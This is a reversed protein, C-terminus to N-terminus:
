CYNCRDHSINAEITSRMARDIILSFTTILPDYSFREWMQSTATASFDKQVSTGQYIILFIDILTRQFFDSLGTFPPAIKPTLHLTNRSRECKCIVTAVEM